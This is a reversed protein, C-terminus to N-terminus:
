IVLNPLISRKRCGAFAAMAILATLLLVWTGSEPVPDGPNITLEFKGNTLNVGFTDGLPLGTFLVTADNTIGGSAGTFFNFTTQYGNPPTYGNLFDIDITSGSDLTVTAPNGTVDISGYQGASLVDFTLIGGPGQAYSGEITIATSPDLSGNNVVAGELTGGDATVIGGTGIMITGAPTPGTGSSLVGGNSVTVNGTGNVGINISSSASGLSGGGTVVVTGSGGSCGVCISGNTVNVTAGGGLTLLGAGANGVELNGSNITWVEGNGGISVYGTSGLSNGIVGSGSTLTNTVPTYLPNVPYCSGPANDCYGNTVLSLQGSSADGVTLTNTVTLSNSGINYAAPQAFLTGNNDLTLSSVTATSITDLTVYGSGITVNSSASPPGSPSWTGNLWSGPSNQTGGGAWTTQCFASVPLAMALALVSVCWLKRFLKPKCQCGTEGQVLLKTKM